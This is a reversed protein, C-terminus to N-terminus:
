KSQWRKKAQLVIWSKIMELGSNVTNAIERLEKDELDTPIEIKQLDGHLKLFKERDDM